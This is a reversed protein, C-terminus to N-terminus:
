EGFSESYTDMAEALDMARTQLDQAYQSTSWWQSLSSIHAAAKVATSFSSTTALQVFRLIIQLLTPWIQVASNIRSTRSHRYFAPLTSPDFPALLTPTHWSDNEITGAVYDSGAQDYHPSDLEVEYEIPFGQIQQQQPALLSSGSVYQQQQYPQSSPMLFESMSEDDHASLRTTTIGCCTLYFLSVGFICLFPYWLNEIRGILLAVFLTAISFPVGNLILRATTNIYHGTGDYNAVEMSLIGPSSVISGPDQSSNTSGSTSRLSGQYLQSSISHGTFASSPALSDDRFFPLNSLVSPGQQGAQSISTPYSPPASNEQSSTSSDRRHRQHQRQHQVLNSLHQQLHISNHRNRGQGASGRTSPSQM